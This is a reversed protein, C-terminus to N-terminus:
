IQSTPLVFLEAINVHAPATAAFLITEAINDPDLPTLQAVFAELLGKYEESTTTLSLETATVGPQISTVRINHKKGVEMRLGESLASVAYKTACYVAFGQGFVKRGAISSTNIIHGAHQEIMVPLVAATVNLVGKINVDIMSDWEDTKFEDFNSMPMIGANNCVIDLQGYRQLLKNVAAAVSNKDTVDLTLVLAQGGQREIDARLANLRETRRAAIAVKAGAEALKKATAAGIGSSAGTILAVKGNLKQM